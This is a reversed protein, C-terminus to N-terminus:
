SFSVTFGKGSFGSFTKKLQIKNKSIKSLAGSLVSSIFIYDINQCFKTWPCFNINVLYSEGKKLIYLDGLGFASWVDILYQISSSEEVLNMGSEFSVEKLTKIAIPNKKFILEILYIISSEIIFFREAGKKIVGHDYSFVKTDLLFQFSKSSNEIEVLKNIEFYDQSLNLLKLEDSTINPFKKNEWNDSSKVLTECFKDGRGQCHSHIADFSSSNILRSWIGAIGGASLFDGKGSKSCIIFNDLEFKIEKNSNSLYHNIKSAYTGEVFRTILYVYEKFEISNINEFSKMNGVLAFRYGFKKGLEYLLESGDPLNEILKNEINVFFSEPLIIQRSYSNTNGSIKFQIFGPKDFVQARSIIFNQIYWTAIKDKVDAM